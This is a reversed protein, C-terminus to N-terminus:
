IRGNVDIIGISLRCTFCGFFPLTKNNDHSPIDRYTHAGGDREPWTSSSSTHNELDILTHGVAAVIQLQQSLLIM